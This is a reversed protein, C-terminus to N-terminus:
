AALRLALPNHGCKWCSDFGEPDRIIQHVCEDDRPAPAITVTAQERKRKRELRKLCVSGCTVQERGRPPFPKGCVGCPQKPRERDQRRKTLELARHCVKSCAVHHQDARLDTVQLVPRECHGCPVAAGWLRGRTRAVACTCCFPAYPYGGEAVAIRLRWVVDLPADCDLCVTSQESAERVRERSATM